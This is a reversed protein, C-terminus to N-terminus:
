LAKICTVCTVYGADRTLNRSSTFKKGCLSKLGFRSFHMRM